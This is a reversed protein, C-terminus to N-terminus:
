YYLQDKDQKLTMSTQARLEGKSFTPRLQSSLPTKVQPLASISKVSKLSKPKDKM